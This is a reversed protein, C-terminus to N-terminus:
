EEESEASVEESSAEAPEDIKLDADMEPEADDFMSDSDLALDDSGGKKSMTVGVAILAGIVIVLVILLNSIGATEGMMGMLGSEGGTVVITIDKSSSFEEDTVILRIQKTGGTEFTYRLPSGWSTFADMDNAPDGDGNSDRTIDLDWAFMLSETDSITDTTTNTFIVVEDGFSVTTKEAMLGAKPRLNVVTVNVLSEAVDGDDDTVHFRVLYVGAEPWSHSISDGVYDCDDDNVLNDDADNTPDIDWCVQLSDADSATDSYTGTLEFLRDEGVPLQASFPTSVPPVNKVTVFGVSIGSSNGNDDVVDLEIIHSGSQTWVVDIESDSGVTSETWSEDHNSSPIWNWTLSDQDNMTDVAEGKLTVQQDEFVTWTAPAPEDNDEAGGDMTMVVDRPAINSVQLVFTGTTVAGDDDTGHLQMIYDGEELPTVTCAMTIASGEECEYSVGDSRTPPEWLFTLPAGTTDLTDLDGSDAAGFTISTESYIETEPSTVNVWPARNLIEIDISTADQDNEEDTITLDVHFIGDDSWNVFMLCDSEEYTRVVGEDVEVEFTCHISGGDADISGTADLLIETLTETPLIEVLDYVPLTGIFIGFTALDNSQNQDNSMMDDPDVEFSFDVLGSPQSQPVTWSFQLTQDGVPPLANITQRQSTSDPALMELETSPGGTMGKNDIPVTFQLVDGAIANFGYSPNLTMTDNGRVRAVSIGGPRPRYDLQVLEADLTLTDVGANRDVPDWAVIGHSAYDHNSPTSDLPDSTNLEIYATGNSATSTTIWEDDYEYRLIFPKNPVPDGNSDSVNVWVGLSSNLAWTPYELDVEYYISPAVPQFDKLYFDVYMGLANEFHRWADNKATPCWWRFSEVTGNEDFATANYSNECGSYEVSPDGVSVVAHSTEFSLTEDEPITFYLSGGDWWNVDLYDNSWEEGVKLPFDYDERPEYYSDTVTVEAVDVYSTSTIWFKVHMYVETKITAFDGARIIDTSEYDVSIDGLTGSLTINEGIFVGESKIRYAVSSHNDVTWTTLSDVWMDLEGTLAEADTEVGSNSIMEAVDFFGDYIWREGEYLVPVDVDGDSLKAGTNSPLTESDDLSEVDEVVLISSWSGLLLLLCLVMTTALQTPPASVRSM